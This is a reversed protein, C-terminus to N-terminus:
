YYMGHWTKVNWILFQLFLSTSDLDHNTVDNVSGGRREVPDSNKGKGKSGQRV